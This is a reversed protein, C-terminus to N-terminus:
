CEFTSALNRFRWGLELFPTLVSRQCHKGADAEHTGSLPHLVPPKTLM